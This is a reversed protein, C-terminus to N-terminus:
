AKPFGSTKRKPIKNAGLYDRVEGENKALCAIVKAADLASGGGFGIVTDYSKEQIIGIAKEVTSIDPEYEVDEFLDVGIYEGELAKKAKEILGLKVINRDTIIIARKGKLNGAEKGIGEICGNGIVLHPMRVGPISYITGAKENKLSM